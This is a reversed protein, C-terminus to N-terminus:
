GRIAVEVVVILRLHAGSGLPLVMRAEAEDFETLTEQCVSYRDGDRCETALARASASQAGDSLRRFLALEGRLRM